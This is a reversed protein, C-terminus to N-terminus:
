SYQGAARRMAIINRGQALSCSRSCYIASSHHTGKYFTKGCIPCAKDPLKRRLKAHYGSHRANCTVILNEIRDDSKDGNIHHVIENDALARGLKQSM